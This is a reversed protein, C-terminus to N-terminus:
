TDNDEIKIGIKLKIKEFEFNHVRAVYEAHKMGDPVIFMASINKSQAYPAYDWDKLDFNLVAPIYKKREM